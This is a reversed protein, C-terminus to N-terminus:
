PGSPFLNMFFVQFDYTAHCVGKVAKPFIGLPLYTRMLFKAIKKGNGLM